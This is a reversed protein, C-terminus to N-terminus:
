FSPFKVVTDVANLLSNDRRIALIGQLSANLTYLIIILTAALRNLLVEMKIILYQIVSATNGIQGLIKSFGDFFMDQVNDLVFDMESMMDGAASLAGSVVGVVNLFPPLQKAYSKKYKHQLCEDMSENPDHGFTDAFPIILPNCKYKDWNDVIRQKQSRVVLIITIIFFLFVIFLIKMFGVIAEPITLCVM